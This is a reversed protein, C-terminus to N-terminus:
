KLEYKISTALKISIGDVMCIEEISARKLNKISKFYKLINKKKKPGL